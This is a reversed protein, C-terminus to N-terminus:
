YRMAPWNYLFGLRQLNALYTLTLYFINYSGLSTESCLFGTKLLKAPFNKHLGESYIQVLFFLKGLGTTCERGIAYSGLNKNTKSQHTIIEAGTETLTWAFMIMPDYKSPKIPM